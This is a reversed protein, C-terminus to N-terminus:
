FSEGPHRIRNQCETCRQYQIKFIGMEIENQLFVPPKVWEGFKKVNGCSCQVVTNKM